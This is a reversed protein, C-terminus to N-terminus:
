FLLLGCSKLILFLIVLLFTVITIQRPLDTTLPLTKENVPGTLLIPASNNFIFRVSDDPNVEIFLRADKKSLFIILYIIFPVVALLFLLLALFPAFEKTKVLQVSTENQFAVQFGHRLYFPIIQQLKSRTEPNPRASTLTKESSPNVPLPASQSQPRNQYPFYFPLQCHFCQVANDYNQANCRPCNKM